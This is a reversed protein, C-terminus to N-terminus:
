IKSAILKLYAADAENTSRGLVEAIDDNDGRLCLVFGQEVEQLLLACLALEGVAPPEGGLGEADAAVVVRCYM